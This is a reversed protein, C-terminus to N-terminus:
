RNTGTMRFTNYFEQVGRRHSGGRGHGSRSKMSNLPKPDEKGDKEQLSRIRSSIPYREVIRSIVHQNTFDDVQDDEEVEESAAYRRVGRFSAPRQSPTPATV